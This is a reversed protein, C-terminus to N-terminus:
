KRAARARKATRAVAAAARAPMRGGAVIAIKEALEAARAAAEVRWGTAAGTENRGINALFVAGGRGNFEQFECDSGVAVPVAARVAVVVGRGLIGALLEAGASRDIRAAERGRAWDLLEAGLCKGGRGGMGFTEREFAKVTRGGFEALLGGCFSDPKETLLVDGAAIRRMIEAAMKFVSHCDRVAGSDDSALAVGLAALSEVGEGRAIRAVVALRRRDARFSARFSARWQRAGGLLHFALLCWRSWAVRRALARPGRYHDGRAWHVSVLDAAAARLEVGGAVRESEDLGCAALRELDAMSAFTAREGGGAWLLRRAERRSRVLARRWELWEGFPLVAAGDPLVGGGRVAPRMGRLAGRVAVAGLRRLCGLCNEGIKGAAAKELAPRPSIVVALPLVYGSRIFAAVHAARWAGGADAEIEKARSWTVRHGEVQVAGRAEARMRWAYAWGESAKVFAAVAEVKPKGGHRGLASQIEAGIRHMREIELSEAREIAAAKMNKGDTKSKM